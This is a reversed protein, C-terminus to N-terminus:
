HNTSCTPAIWRATFISSWAQPRDDDVMPGVSGTVQEPDKAEIQLTQNIEGQQGQACEIQIRVKNGTSALITHSCSRGDQGFTAGKKLQELTLCYKRQTVKQADSSRAKTREEVRARQESTLKELLGAPIPMEGSSIATTTVEWLGTKINLPQVKDAALAAASLTALVLRLILRM